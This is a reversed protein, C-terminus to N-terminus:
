MLISNRKNAKIKEAGIKMQNDDFVGRDTNVIRSWEPYLYAPQSIDNLENIDDISLKLEIAKLNDELQSIKSFGSIVSSVGDQNLLWSLAVNSASCNNKEAVKKVAEMIEFCYRSDLPPFVFAARRGEGKGQKNYKGTLFGGALPSWVMIGIGLDKAAPLIEYEIDRGTLSYYNQSSIFEELGLQKAIGQAKALQWGAFNSLGIYRVKGSRVLDDLTKLTEEIPTFSDFGQLQYLDIYDTSLRKLSKEVELMIGKRSGGFAYHPEVNNTFYVKTAVIQNDRKGKLTKGLIEESAGDLYINATDFFNVGKDIAMDVMKQAESVSTIQGGFTMAGFCLRSVYLGSNGLNIYEM